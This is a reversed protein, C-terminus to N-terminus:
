IIKIKRLFSKVVELPNLDMGFSADFENLLENEIVEEVVPALEEDSAKPQKPIDYVPTTGTIVEVNYESTNVIFLDRDTLNLDTGTDLKCMFVDVKDDNGIRYARSLSQEIQYNRFALDILIVVNASPIPVGTSLSKYTAALVRNDSKLDNIKKVINALDKINDGFVGLPKYGLKNCENIVEQCVSVYNSFVLTKKNTLQVLNSYDVATAIAKYCKIRSGLLIKGLAEGIVKLKPYKVISCLDRFEKKSLSDLNTYIYTKELERTENVINYIEYLRGSDAKNRILKINSRYDKLSQKIPVKSNSEAITLLSEFRNQYKPMDKLLEPLRKYRYDLMRKNINGLTFDEGNPVSVRYESIEIEGMSKSQNEIRERYLNFRYRWLDLKIGTLNKYFSDFISEIKPFKTDLLFLMTKVENFKYKIPTGTLLLTDKFKMYKIFTLLTTARESKLDNFNHFEDIILCPKIRKIRRALKKDLMLKSLFEYHTIIFKENNYTSQKSNFVVYSQPTKYLTETVSEVWPSEVTSKPAIIITLDYDLLESLALSIYTNHTVLYDEIVFLKSKNNVTICTALDDEIEEYGTISLGSDEESYKKNVLEKDPTTFLADLNNGIIEIVNVSINTKYGLSWALEQIQKILKDGFVICYVKGIYSFGSSDILGKLLELRNEYSSELYEKPLTYSIEYLLESIGSDYPLMLTYKDDEVESPVAVTFEPLKNNLKRVIEKNKCKFDNETLTYGLFYGIVYPHVKLTTNFLNLQTPLPISLKTGAKLLSIIEYTHKVGLNTDWLHNLDVNSSRGDEFQLNVLKRIGQPYVATVVTHKGDDGIVTDGVNLTEIPVWKTPTLVLTDNRLAKGGGAGVDMLFGNLGNLAKIEEYKTFVGLQHELPQFKMDKELHKFDFLSTINKQLRNSVWTRTNIFDILDTLVVGGIDVALLHETDQMLQLCYQLELLFFEYFEFSNKNPKVFLLRSSSKGVLKSLAKFIELSKDTAIKYRKTRSNYEYGISKFYEM